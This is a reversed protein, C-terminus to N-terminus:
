LQYDCTIALIPTVFARRLSKSSCDDSSPAVFVIQACLKLNLQNTKFGFRDWKEEKFDRCQSKNKSKKASMKGRFSQSDLALFPRLTWAIHEHSRAHSASSPLLTEQILWRMGFYIVVFHM